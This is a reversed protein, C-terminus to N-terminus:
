QGTKALVRHRGNEVVGCCYRGDRAGHAYHGSAPVRRQNMETLLETGTMGPMRIDLILCGPVSPADGTLFSKADPYTKVQWGAYSLMMECTDRLDADDDVIRILTEQQIAELNM